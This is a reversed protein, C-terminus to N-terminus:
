KDQHFVPSLLQGNISFNSCIGGKLLILFIDSLTRIVGLRIEWNPGTHATFATM